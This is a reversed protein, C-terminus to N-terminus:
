GSRSEIRPRAAARGWRSKAVRLALRALGGLLPTELVRDRLRFTTSGRLIALEALAREREDRLRDSHAREQECLAQLESREVELRDRERLGQDRETRLREAEVHFEDREVLLHHATGEAQTVRKKLFPGLWQLYLSAARTDEGDESHRAHEALVERYLGVIEDVAEERGAEARVRRSVQAADAPDYRAIERALVEPVLPERLTRIGFNLARLRDLAATTVMPGAGAADCLVVAAGVALAELAARAKAFVLDYAGLLAEPSSSPNGADHGVVDLAIGARACAERLVGVHTRESAANSFVLARAPRAPLPARPAFRELDVFNFLVRVREESIGHEFVLRDRCAHDVAVYRLIRPSRPPAEQWPAWGHCVYIAPVGPFRLIATMAELHHQGHILDPAAGLAELDDIVPVTAARLECAVDGLETSYAIPTHGRALLATALDRVYLESGARMALTNNTILIRLGGMLGDGRDPPPAGGRAARLARWLAASARLARRHGAAGRLARLLAPGRSARRRGGPAPMRHPLGRAGDRRPRGLGRRRARRLCADGRAQARLSRRRAGALHRPSRTGASM